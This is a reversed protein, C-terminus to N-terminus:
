GTINKNIIKPISGIGDYGPRKVKKKIIISLVPPTKIPNM